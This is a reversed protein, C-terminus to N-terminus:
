AAIGCKRPSNRDDTQLNQSYICLYFLKFKLMMDWTLDLNLSRLNLEKIEASKGIKQDITLVLANFTHYHRNTECVLSNIKFMAVLKLRKVKILKYATGMM